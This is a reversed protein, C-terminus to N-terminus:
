SGMRRYTWRIPESGDELSIEALLLEGERWYRIRQPYENAANVFTLGSDKGPKWEFLTWGEGLPAAIFALPVTAEESIPEDLAIRMTEWGGVKAGVGSRGSGLMMGDRPITWCEEAWIEGERSEWCGSMWDPM